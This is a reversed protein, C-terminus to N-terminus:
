FVFKKYVASLIARAELLAFKQGICDARGRSFPVFYELNIQDDSWREPRFVDADAGWLSPLRQVIYSSIYIVCGEVDHGCLKDGKRGFRATGAAPFLRLAEKIVNGLYPMASLDAHTPETRPGLVSDIEKLLKEEISLHTGLLYCVWSMLTATTDHGAFILTKLTAITEERRLPRGDKQASAMALSLID